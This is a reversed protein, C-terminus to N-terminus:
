IDNKISKVRDEIERTHQVQFYITKLKNKPQQLLGITHVVWYSTKSQQSANNILIKWCLGPVLSLPLAQPHIAPSKFLM